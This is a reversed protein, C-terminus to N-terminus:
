FEHYRSYAKRSSQIHLRMCVCTFLYAQPTQIPRPNKEVVVEFQLKFSNEMDDTVQGYYDRKKTIRRSFFIWVARFVGIKCCSVLQAAAPMKDRSFVLHSGLHDM